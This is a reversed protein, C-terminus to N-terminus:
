DWYNLQDQLVEYHKKYEQKKFLKILAEIPNEGPLHAGIWVGDTSFTWSRNDPNYSILGLEEADLVAVKIAQDVSKNLKFFEKPNNRAFVRLDYKVSGEYDSDLIRNATAIGASHAYAIIDEPKRLNMVSTEAEYALNLGAGTEAWKRKDIDVRKFAATQSHDRWKNSENLPHLELLVYMLYNREIAVTKFGSDFIIDEIVEQPVNRGDVVKNEFRVVNKLTKHRKLIDTEFPDYIVYSSPIILPVSDTPKGTLPDIQNKGIAEYHAARRKTIPPLMSSSLGQLQIPVSKKYKGDERHIRVESQKEEKQEQGLDDEAKNKTAKVSDDEEEKKAEKVKTTNKKVVKKVEDDDEMFDSMSPLATQDQNQVNAKTNM